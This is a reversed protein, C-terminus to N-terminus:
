QEVDISQTHTYGTNKAFSRREGSPSQFYIYSPTEGLSHYDGQVLEELDSALVYVCFDASPAAKENVVTAGSSVTQKGSHNEIRCLQQYKVPLAAGSAPIAKHVNAFTDDVTFAYKDNPQLLRYDSVIAAYEPQQCPQLSIILGWMNCGVSMSSFEIDTACVRVMVTDTFLSLLSLPRCDFVACDYKSHGAIEGVYVSNIYDTTAIFSERHEEYKARDVSFVCGYMPADDKSPTAAHNCAAAIAAQFTLPFTECAGRQIKLQSVEPAYPTTSKSAPLLYGSATLTVADKAKMTKYAKKLDTLKIYGAEDIDYDISHFSFATDILAYGFPSLSVTTSAPLDKCADLFALQNKSYTFDTEIM